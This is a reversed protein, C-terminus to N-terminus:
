QRSHGICTVTGIVPYAKCATGKKTIGICSAKIVAGVAQITDWGLSDAVILRHHGDHLTISGNEHVSIHIPPIENGAAMWEALSTNDEMLKDALRQEEITSMLLAVSMPGEEGEPTLPPMFDPIGGVAPMKEEAPQGRVEEASIGKGNLDEQTFRTQPVGFNATKNEAKAHRDKILKM